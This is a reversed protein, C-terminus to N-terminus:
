FKTWITEIAKRDDILEYTDFFQILSICGGKSVANVVLLCVFLLACVKIIREDISVFEIFEEQEQLANIKARTM